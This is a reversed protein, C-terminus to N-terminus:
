MLGEVSPFRFRFSVHFTFFEMVLTMTSQPKLWCRDVAAAAQLVGSEDCECCSLRPDYTITVGKTTILLITAFIDKKRCGSIMVKETESSGSQHAWARAQWSGVRSWVCFTMEGWGLLVCM